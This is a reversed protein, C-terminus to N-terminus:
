ENNKNKNKKGKKGLPCDRKVINGRFFLGEIRVEV